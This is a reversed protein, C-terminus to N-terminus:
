RHAAVRDKAPRAGASAVRRPRPWPLWWNREGFLRMLAPVLVMRILTADLIIAAGVAFGAQQHDTRHTLLLGLFTTAMVAAALTVPHATHRIGEVVAETNDGTARYHEAIRHTLFVEYDLSLGFVLTFALLPLTVNVTGATGLHQFLLTLLGFAAGISLLNMCIAKVPILVSRFIVMLLVFSCGLVLALVQWLRTGLEETLDALLAAGGAALMEQGPPLHQRALDHMHEQLEVSHVSDPAHREAVSLVTLDRRNDMVSVQAVRPDARLAAVLPRMAVRATGEQRPLALMTTNALGDGEMRALARGLDSDAIASREYHMGLRLNVVPAAALLMVATVGLVYRWPHRMLHRAWAVWRPASPMGRRWPVRGWGLLRDLRPLLAPLLTLAATMTLFTGLMSAVAITRVIPAPVIFLSACALLIALACWAVTAGATAMAHGVATRPDDGDARARRYRLMILLTYDLGLGLCLTSIVTVVTSDISVLAAVGTLVALSALIGAAAVLLPMLAAGVAGLGLVLILLGAPVTIFEAQRLDDMGSRNLEEYMAGTSVLTVTVAGGSARRVARQATSRQADMQQRRVTEDGTVGARAYAHRLDQDPLPPMPQVSSVEPRVDLAKMTAAVARRYRADPTIWQASDFALVVQEDGLGPFGQAVMAAARQSPSGEIEWSPPKLRHHLQPLLLLSLAAVVLWIATILRGHAAAAVGARHMLVRSRGEDLVRHRM